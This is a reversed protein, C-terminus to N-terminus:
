VRLKWVRRKEKSRADKGAPKLFRQAQRRAGGEGGESSASSEKETSGNATIDGLGYLSGVILAAFYIHFFISTNSTPSM